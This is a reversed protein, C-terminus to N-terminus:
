RYPVSFKKDMEPRHTVRVVKSGKRRDQEPNLNGIGGFPPIISAVSSLFFYLAANDVDHDHSSLFSENIILAKKVWEKGGRANGPTM